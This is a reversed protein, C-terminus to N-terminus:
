ISRLSCGSSIYEQDCKLSGELSSLEHGKALGPYKKNHKEATPYVILIILNIFQRHFFFPEGIILPFIRIAYDQTMNLGGEGVVVLFRIRQSLPFM